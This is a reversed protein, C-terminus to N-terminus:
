GNVDEPHIVLREPYVVRAERPESNLWKGKSAKIWLCDDEVRTVRKVDFYVTSGRRNIHLVRQGVRFEREFFDKM